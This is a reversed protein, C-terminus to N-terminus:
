NFKNIVFRGLDKITPKIYNEVVGLTVGVLVLPIIEPETKAEEFLRTLIEHHKM